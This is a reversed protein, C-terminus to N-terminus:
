FDYFCGQQALGYFGFEAVKSEFQEWNDGYHTLVMKKKIDPPLTNLEDLSAHVGGKFFQCDHFIIDLNFRKSYTYILDPDFKTDSTFMIRNDIILGCSWFSSEWSDPFDPIHKTRFMKIDISGIKTGLTERPYGELWSTHQIEWMDSFGLVSGEHEENFAAGGRLSMDWLLHQYIKGIVMVPKKKAVYRGMLMAEELGGIHDAHAHTILFSKLDTVNRGLEYLAQPAKTGFDVMLHDDGMIILINTQNHRKTFASGVGLFFISLFGDNTLPLKKDELKRIKM